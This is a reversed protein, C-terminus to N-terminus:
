IRSRFCLLPSPKPLSHLSTRYRSPFLRYGTAVFSSAVASSFQLSVIMHLSAFCGLQHSTRHVDDGNPIGKDPGALSKTIRLVQNGRQTIDDLAPLGFADIRVPWCSTTTPVLRSGSALFARTSVFWSRSSFYYNHVKSSRISDM